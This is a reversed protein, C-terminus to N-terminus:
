NVLIKELFEEVTIVGLKQEMRSRAYEAECDYIDGGGKMLFLWYMSQLLDERSACITPSFVAPSVKLVEAFKATTEANPTRATKESYGMLLGLEKQTLRRFRRIFKLRQGISTDTIWWTM